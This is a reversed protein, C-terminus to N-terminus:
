FSVVTVVIIDVPPLPVIAVVSIGSSIVVSAGSPLAVFVSTVVDLPAPPFAVVVTANIPQAANVFQM